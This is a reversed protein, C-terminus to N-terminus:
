FHCHVPLRIQYGAALVHRDKPSNTLNEILAEYETVNAEPFAKQMQSYTRKIKSEELEPKDAQLNRMWEAHIEETWKPTFFYSNALWLLIDRVSAPYLVNADLVAIPM